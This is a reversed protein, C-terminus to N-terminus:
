SCARTLLVLGIFSTRIPPIGFEGGIAYFRDVYDRCAGFPSHGSGIATGLDAAVLENIHIFPPSWGGNDIGCNLFSMAGNPGDTNSTFSQANSAGCKPDNLQSIAPHSHALLPFSARDLRPLFPLFVYTSFVPSALLSPDSWARTVV